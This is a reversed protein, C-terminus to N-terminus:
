AGQQVVVGSPAATGRDLNGSTAVIRDLVPRYHAFDPTPLGPTKAAEDWLRVKVAIDKYPSREFEAAEDASMPGGQLRLSLVSAPSLRAFYTPDATCLYRKTAVHLRVPETVEPPFFPALVRAGAADHHNDIGQDAADPAFESTYHGIDHLLAAAIMADSGDEQEALLAAQLMHESMTVPEGIYSDAGRRLFIDEILDVVTERTVETSM